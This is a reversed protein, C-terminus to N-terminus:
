PGVVNGRNVDVEGKGECYECQYQEAEEVPCNRLCSEESGDCGHAAVSRVFYGKGDCMPCDVVTRDEEVYPNVGAEMWVEISPCPCDYAHEQHEICWFDECAECKIWCPKM